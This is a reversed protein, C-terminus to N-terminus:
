LGWVKAYSNGNESGILRGSGVCVDGAGSLWAQARAPGTGVTAGARGGKGLSVDSSHRSICAGTERVTPAAGVGGALWAASPHPYADQGRVSETGSWDCWSWLGRGM